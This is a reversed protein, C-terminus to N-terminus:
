EMQRILQRYQSRLQDRSKQNYRQRQKKKEHKTEFAVERPIGKRKGIRATQGRNHDEELFRVDRCKSVIQSDEKRSNTTHPVERPIGRRKGISPLGNAESYSLPQGPAHHMRATSGRNHDDELRAFDWCKSVIEGDEKRRNITNGEIRQLGDRTCHSSPRGLTHYMSCKPCLSPM